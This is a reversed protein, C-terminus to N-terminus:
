RPAIEASREEIDALRNIECGRSGCRNGEFGARVSVRHTRSGRIPVGSRGWGQARRRGRGRVRREADGPKNQEHEDAVGANRNTPLLVSTTLPIVHRSMYLPLAHDHTETEASVVILFPPLFLNRSAAPPVCRGAPRCRSSPTNGRSPPSSSTYTAGTKDALPLFSALSASPDTVGHHREPRPGVGHHRFSHRTEPFAFRRTGDM